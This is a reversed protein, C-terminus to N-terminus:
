KKLNGDISKLTTNGNDLHKIITDLKHWLMGFLIGIRNWDSSTMSDKLQQLEEEVELLGADEPHTKKAETLTTKIEQVQSEALLKNVELIM